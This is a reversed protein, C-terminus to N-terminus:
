YYARSDGGRIKYALLLDKVGVTMRNAHIACLNSDGLIEVLYMETAERMCEVSSQKLRFDPDLENLVSRVKREFPMKATLPKSHKQYRKIERLAVTGPHFRIKRKSGEEQSEGRGKSKSGKPRGRGRKKGQDKRASNKGRPM